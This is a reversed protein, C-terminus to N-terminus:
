SRAPTSYKVGFLLTKRAPKLGRTELWNISGYNRSTFKQHLWYWDQVTLSTKLSGPHLGWPSGPHLGWGACHSREPTGGESLWTAKGQRKVCSGVLHRQACKWKSVEGWYSHEQSSWKLIWAVEAHPQNQALTPSQKGTLPFLLFLQVCINSSAYLCLWSWFTLKQMFLRKKQFCTSLLVMDGVFLKAHLLYKIFSYIFSHVFLCLWFGDM